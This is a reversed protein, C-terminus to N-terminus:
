SLRDVHFSPPFVASMTESGSRPKYLGQAGYRYLMRAPSSTPCHLALEYIRTTVGFFKAALLGLAAHAGRHSQTSTIYTDKPCRDTGFTTSHIGDDTHVTGDEHSTQRTVTLAGLM